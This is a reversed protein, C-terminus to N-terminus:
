GPAPTRSLGAVQAHEGPVPQANRALIAMVKAVEPRSAATRIEPGLWHEGRKGFLWASVAVIQLVLDRLIKLAIWAVVCLVLTVATLVIAPHALTLWIGVPALIDEALSLGINSFPEPSHNMLLRTAAKSSHSSLAVGGCLIAIALKLSPDIDGLA